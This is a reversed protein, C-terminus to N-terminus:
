SIADLREHYLTLMEDLVREPAFRDLMRQRGRQGMSALVEPSAPLVQRRLLEALARHDGTSVEWGNDGAAVIGDLNAAHSLLAPLGCACGELAANPLGEWLSPLCLVDAAWYLSLVDTQNGLLRVQPRLRPLDCLLQTLRDYAAGRGRGALLLVVDEPLQGRQALRDLGLLLGLQHKQISIRGPMLLARQGPGLQWRQRAAVREADTPPRFRELDLFNHVVRIRDRPVFARQVLEREIGLSNVVVADARTALLRETLLYQPEMMRARVSSIIVPVGAQLAALRGWFNAPNLYSHFITPREARLAALLRRYSGLSFSADPGDLIVKPQGAPLLDRYHISDKHLGLVPEYPPPVRRVLELIQRESGGQVLSPVFYFVKTPRDAGTAM